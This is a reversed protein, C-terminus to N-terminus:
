ESCACGGLCYNTKYIGLSGATLDSVFISWEVFGAFGGGQAIMKSFISSSAFTWEAGGRWQFSFLGPRVLRAERGRRRSNCYPRRGIHPFGKVVLAGFVAGTGGQPSGATAVVRVYRADGIYGLRYVQDDTDESNIRPETGVLEAAAVSSFSSNDDLVQVDFQFDGDTWDGASSSASRAMM